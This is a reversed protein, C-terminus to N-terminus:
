SDVNRVVKVQGLVSFFTPFMDQIAVEILIITKLGDVWARSHQQNLITTTIAIVQIKVKSLTCLILLWSARRM